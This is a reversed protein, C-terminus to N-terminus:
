ETRERRRAERPMRREVDFGPGLADHQAGARRSGVAHGDQSRPIALLRRPSGPCPSIWRSDSVSPSGAAASRRGEWRGSSCSALRKRWPSKAGREEVAGAEEEAREEHQAM